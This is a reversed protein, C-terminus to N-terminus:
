ETGARPTASLLPLFNLTVLRPSPLAGLITRPTDLVNAFENAQGADAQSNSDPKPIAKATDTEFFQFTQPPKPRAVAKGTLKQVLELFEEPQIKYVRPSYTHIVRPPYTHVFRPPKACGGSLPKHLHLGTSSKLTNTPKSANVHAEIAGMGEFHHALVPQPFSNPSSPLDPELSNSEKEFFCAARKL